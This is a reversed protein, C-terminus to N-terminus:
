WTINNMKFLNPNLWGWGPGMISFLQKTRLFFEKLSIVESIFYFYKWLHLVYKLKTQYKLIITNRYGYFSTFHLLFVISRSLLKYVRKVDTRTFVAKRGFNSSFWYQDYNWALFIYVLFWWIEHTLDTYQLPLLDFCLIWPCRM